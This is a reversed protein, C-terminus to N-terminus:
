KKEGACLRCSFLCSTCWCQLLTLLIDLPLFHAILTCGPWWMVSSTECRFSGLAYLVAAKNWGSAFDAIGAAGLLSTASLLTVLYYVGFTGSHGGVYAAAKHSLKPPPPLKKSRCIGCHMRLCLLVARMIVGRCYKILFFASYLFSWMAGVLLIAILVRSSECSVTSDTRMFSSSGSFDPNEVLPDSFSSAITQNYACLLIADDAAGSSSLGARATV